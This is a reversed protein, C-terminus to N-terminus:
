GVRPSAGGNRPTGARCRVEVIVEVRPVLRHGVPVQGCGELGGGSGGRDGAVPVGGLVEGCTGPHGTCGKGIVLVAPTISDSRSVRGCRGYRM